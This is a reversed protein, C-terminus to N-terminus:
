KKKLNELEQVSEPTKEHLVKEEALIIADKKADIEKAAVQMRKVSREIVQWFEKVTKVDSFVIRSSYQIRALETLEAIARTSLLYEVLAAERTGIGYRVCFDKSASEIEVGDSSTRVRFIVEKGSKLEYQNIKKKRGFM